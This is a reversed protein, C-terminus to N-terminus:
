SRPTPLLAVLEAISPDYSWDFDDCDELGMKMRANAEEVVLAETVETVEPVYLPGKVRKVQLQASEEEAAALSLLAAAADLDSWSLSDEESCCSDEDVSELWDFKRKPNHPDKDFGDCDSTATTLLQNTNM